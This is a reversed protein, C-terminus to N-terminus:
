AQAAAIFARIKGSDKVGPASEVGSSLDVQRAGTLNMAQKVNEVTLGGALMWPKTWYKRGALLRWDFTLGNGGPLEANKPPKADILLQDAVESYIDIAPLDDADSVGIVKIVPLGYRAKIEAVREPSEAGHLQIMDLPVLTTIEDLLADDPDVVLGVKAVGMPTEIALDRAREPSVYRPSAPFFNFGIYAAGADAAVAIHEHEKLGCIKVAIDPSM